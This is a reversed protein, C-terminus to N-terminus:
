TFACACVCIIILSNKFLIHRLIFTYFINFTPLVVKKNNQVIQVYFSSTTRSHSANVLKHTHKLFNPVEESTFTQLKNNRIM